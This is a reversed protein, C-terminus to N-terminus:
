SELEIRIREAVRRAKEKAHLISDARALAVGVRRKGKVDPKGFLRLATDPEALSEAVGHFRPHKGYGEALMAMSASPGLSFTSTAM